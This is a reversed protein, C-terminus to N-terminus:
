ALVDPIVITGELYLAAKGTLEVRDGRLRTHVDGQRASLQRCHLTEGGLRSSWFPALTCHASGTVPDEDVGSAPAFFRSVVDVDDGRATVIVNTRMRRLAAIDPAAALVAAEDGLVALVYRGRHVEKVSWLELPAGLVRDLDADDVPGTVPVAPFDMALDEGDLTVTLLGSATHFRIPGDDLDCWDLAFAAALTAHGCLDVEVTPTFWRLGWGGREDPVVFATESLNNEAAVAQLIDSTLWRDLLVVAAPNGALPREAFADVQLIRARM